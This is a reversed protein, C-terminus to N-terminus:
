RSVKRRHRLAEMPTIPTAPRAQCAVQPGLTNLLPRRSHEHPSRCRYPLNLSKWNASTQPKFLSPHMNAGLFPACVPLPSMLVVLLRGRSVQMNWNKDTSGCSFSHIRTIRVSALARHLFPNYQAITYTKFMDGTEESASRRSSTDTLDPSRTMAQM